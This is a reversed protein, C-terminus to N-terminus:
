YLRFPRRIRFYVRDHTREAAGVQQGERQYGGVFTTKRLRYEAGVDMESVRTFAETTIQFGDRRYGGHFAWNRRTRYSGTLSFYHDASSLSNVMPTFQSLLANNLPNSVDLVVLASNVNRLGTDAVITWRASNLIGHFQLLNNKTSTHEQLALLTSDLHDVDVALDLRLRSTLRRQFANSWREESQLPLIASGTTYATYLVNSTWRWGGIPRKIGTEMSRREDTYGNSVFNNIYHTMSAHWSAEWKGFSRSYGFNGGVSTFSKLLTAEDAASLGATSLTAHGLNVGVFLHSTFSYTLAGHVNLESSKRPALLVQQLGPDLVSTSVEGTGSSMIWASSIAEEFLNSSYDAGYSGRLKETHKFTLSTQLENLSANEAPISSSSFGQERHRLSARFDGRRGLPKGIQLGSGSLRSHFDQLSTQVNLYDATGLFSWDHFVRSATGTLSQEREQFSVGTFVAQETSGTTATINLNVFKPQHLSWAIGLRQSTGQLDTQFGSSDSTTRSVIIQLPFSRSSLFTGNLNFGVVRSAGSDAGSHAVDISIIHSWLRPDLLYGAEHVSVDFDNQNARFGGSSNSEFGFSGVGYVHGVLGRSFSPAEQPKHKKKKQSAPASKPLGWPLNGPASQSRADGASLILLVAVLVLFTRQVLVSRRATRGRSKSSRHGFSLLPGSM